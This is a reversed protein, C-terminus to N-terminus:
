RMHQPPSAPQFSPQAGVVHVHAPSSGPRPTHLAQASGGNHPEQPAGEAGGTVAAASSAGGGLRVVNDQTAPLRFSVTGGLPSRLVAGGCYGGNGGLRARPYAAAAASGAAVGSLQQQAAPISAGRWPGPAPQPVAGSMSLRAAAVAASSVGAAGVAPALAPMQALGGPGSLMGAAMAEAQSMPKPRPMLGSGTTLRSAAGAGPPPIYMPMSRPAHNLVASGGSPKCGGAGCGAPSHAGASGCGGGTEMSMASSHRQRLPESASRIHRVMRGLIRAAVEFTPREAPNPDTCAIGLSRLPAYISGDSPWTLQLTGTVLGMLVQPTTLGLYPRVGASLEWLMVGFSYVDSAKCCSGKAAEPALYALAGWQDSTLQATEGICPRALGLDAIKSTYGRPDICTFGNAGAAGAPAFQCPSGKLLVNTPKLDGHLIDLGHLHAMGQALEQATLLLALLKTRHELSRRASFEGRVIAHHLTGADMYEMVVVTCHRGPEAHLDVLAQMLSVGEGPQPRAVEADDGGGCGPAAAQPPMELSARRAAAAAAVGDGESVGAGDGACIAVGGDTAVSTRPPLDGECYSSRAGCVSGCKPLSSAGSLLAVSGGAGAPTTPAAAPTCMGGAGSLLLAVQSPTRLSQQSQRVPSQQQAQQQHQQQSSGPRLPVTPPPTALRPLAAAGAAQQPGLVGSLQNHLASSLRSSGPLLGGLGTSIGGCTASRGRLGSKLDALIAAETRDHCAQLEQALAEAEVADQQAVATSTGRGLSSSQLLSQHRRSRTQIGDWVEPTLQAIATAFCQVVCPHSNCLLHSPPPVLDTLVPTTDAPPGM